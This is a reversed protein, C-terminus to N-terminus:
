RRSAGARAALATVAFIELQVPPKAIKQEAVAARAAEARDAHHLYDAHFPTVPHPHWVQAEALADKLSRAAACRASRDAFQPARRDFTVVVYGGLSAVSGTKAPDPKAALEDGGLEVIRGDRVAVAKRISFERDVTLVKGNYLLIDAPEASQAGGASAALLAAISILLGGRGTLRM